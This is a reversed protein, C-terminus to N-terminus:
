GLEVLPYLPVHSILEAQSHALHKKRELYGTKAVGVSKGTESHQFFRPIPTFSFSFGKNLNKVCDTVCDYVIVVVLHTLRAPHLITFCAMDRCFGHEPSGNTVACVSQLHLM